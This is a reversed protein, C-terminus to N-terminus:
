GALKQQRTERELTKRMKSLAKVEIQRVRERTIGMVKGCQSLAHAKDYRGIGFRMEIVLQEQPKLGSKLFAAAVLFKTHMDAIHRESGPVATRHDEVVEEIGTEPLGYDNTVPQDLSSTGEGWALFELVLDATMEVRKSLLKNHEDAIEDPTPDRHLEASLGRRIRKIVDITEQVYIPLRITYKTDMRARSVAQRIWWTAYTTFRYPFTPNFKGVARMLGINGEQILDKLEEETNAYLKAISMVLRLNAEVLQNRAMVDGAQARTALDKEQEATLLSFAGIEKRWLSISDMEASQQSRSDSYLTDAQHSKLEIKM